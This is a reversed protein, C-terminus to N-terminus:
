RPQFLLVEPKIQLLADKCSSSRVAYGSWIASVVKPIATVDDPLHESAIAMRPRHKRITENAGRLAQKEAGEIDMKIFDVRPLRLEEALADITTLPVKVKNKQDRGMVFSDGTTDGDDGEALELVDPHDWVGKPVVIVRGEGIEREFNRRLCEVTAPAPEISIVLRAGRNLATRTFVGVNAGCDLVVDGPHVAVDDGGYIEMQEEGLTFKLFRDNRVTWFRGMPTEVLEFERKPDTAVVKSVAGIREGAREMNILVDHSNIADHFSCQGCRGAAWVMALRARPWIAATLLLLASALLIRKLGTHITRRM